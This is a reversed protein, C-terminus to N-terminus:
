ASKGKSAKLNLRNLHELVVKRDADDQSKLIYQAEKPLAAFVEIAAEIVKYKPPGLCKCLDDFLDYVDDSIEFSFKQM